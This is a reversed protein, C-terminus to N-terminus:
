AADELVLKAHFSDVNHDIEIVIQPTLVYRTLAYAALLNLLCTFTFQMWFSSKAPKKGGMKADDVTNREVEDSNSSRNLPLVAGSSKKRQLM